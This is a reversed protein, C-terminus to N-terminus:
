YKGWVARRSSPPLRLASTRRSGGVAAAPVLPEHRSPVPETVSGEMAVSAAAVDAAVDTAAEVGAADVVVLARRRRQREDVLRVLAHLSLLSGALVLAAVGDLLAAMEPLRGAPHTRAALGVVAGAGALMGGSLLTVWWVSSLTPAEHRRWDPSCPLPDEASSRWLDDMLQKPRVLNLGPVLWGLVAWRPRWRGDLVALAPLNGLARGMWAVLLAAVVVVLVAAASEAVGLAAPDPAIALGPGSARLQGQRWLQGAGIGTAVLASVVLAGRLHRGLAGAPRFGPPGGGDDGRRWAEVALRQRHREWAGTLDMGCADCYCAQHAIVRRCRPCGPSGQPAVEFLIEPEFRRVDPAFKPHFKCSVNPTGCAPCFRDSPEVTAGCDKCSM